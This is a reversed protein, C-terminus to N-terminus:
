HTAKLVVFVWDSVATLLLLILVFVGVFLIASLVVPRSREDVGRFLGTLLTAGIPEM